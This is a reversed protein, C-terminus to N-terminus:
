LGFFFALEKQLFYGPKIEFNEYNIFKFNILKEFERKDILELRKCDVEKDNFFAHWCKPVGYLSFDIRWGAIHFKHLFVDKINDCLDSNQSLFWPFTDTKVYVSMVIPLNKIYKKLNFYPLTANKFVDLPDLRVFNMANWEGHFNVDNADFNQMYWSQFNQLNGLKIGIEFHLHASNKPLNYANGTRGIEGLSQGCNVYAGTVINNDISSLHGYLSYLMIGDVNHQLIVYNGYSSVSERPDRNVYAVCGSGFAVVSDIANGNSDKISSKIDIGSHFRKGNNRVLGFTGSKPDGSATAQIWPSVDKTFDVHQGYVPWCIEEASLCLSFFAAFIYCFRLMKRM